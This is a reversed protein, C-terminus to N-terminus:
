NEEQDPWNSRDPALKLQEEIQVLSWSSGRNCGPCEEAIEDWDARSELNANWFPWSRCQDPRDEYVQCGTSNSWFVCDGNPKETLSLRGRAMRLHRRGFDELSLGFRKALREVEREGVWVFGPAGTCCRGCQTCEFKLGESFWVQESM